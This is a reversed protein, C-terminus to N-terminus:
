RIKRSWMMRIVSPSSYLFVLRAPGRSFYLSTRVRFNTLAVCLIHHSYSHVCAMLQAYQWFHFASAYSSVFVPIHIYHLALSHLYCMCQVNQSLHNGCTVVQKSISSNQVKRASYIQTMGKLLILLNIKADCSHKRNTVFQFEIIIRRFLLLVSIRNNNNLLLEM